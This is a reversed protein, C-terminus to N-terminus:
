KKPVIKTHECAFDEYKNLLEILEGGVIYKNLSRSYVGRETMVYEKYM